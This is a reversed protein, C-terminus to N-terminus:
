FVRAFDQLPEGLKMSLFVIEDVNKDGLCRTKLHQKLSTKLIIKM